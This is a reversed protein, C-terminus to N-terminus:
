PEMRCEAERIEEESSNSKGALIGYLDAFRHLPQAPEAGSSLQAKLVSLQAELSKVQVQLSVTSV